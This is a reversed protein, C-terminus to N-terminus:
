QGAARDASSALWDIARPDPSSKATSWSGKLFVPRSAAMDCRHDKMIAGAMEAMVFRLRSAVAAAAADVERLVAAPPVDGPKVLLAHLCRLRAQSALAWDAYSSWQPCDPSRLDASLRMEELAELLGRLERALRRAELAELTGGVRPESMSSRRSDPCFDCPQQRRADISKALAPQPSFVPASTRSAEFVQTGKAVREPPVDQGPSGFLSSAYCQAAPSRDQSPRLGGNRHALWPQQSAAVSQTLFSTQSLPTAAPSTRFSTQSLPTVAPSRGPLSVPQNFLREAERLAAQMADDFLSVSELERACSEELAQAVSESTSVQSLPSPALSSNSATSKPASQTPSVGLASRSAHVGASSPFACFSFDIGHGRFCNVEPGPGPSTPATTPPTREVFPSPCRSGQDADAAEAPGWTTDADLVAKAAAGARSAVVALLGAPVACSAFVPWSVEDPCNAEVAALVSDYADRSGDETRLEVPLGFFASASPESGLARMLRAREVHVGAAGSACECCADFVSRLPAVTSAMFGHAHSASM